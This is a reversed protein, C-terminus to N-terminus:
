VLKDDGTLKILMQMKEDAVIEGNRVIQVFRFVCPFDTHPNGAEEAGTFRVKEFHQRIQHFVPRQNVVALGLACCIEEFRLDLVRHEVRVDLPGHRKGGIDNEEVDLGLGVVRVATVGDERNQEAHQIFELAIGAVRRVDGVHLAMEIFTSFEGSEM